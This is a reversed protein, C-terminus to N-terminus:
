YETRARRSVSGIKNRNTVRTNKNLRSFPCLTWLTNPEVTVNVTCFDKIFSCFPDSNSDPIPLSDILCVQNIFDNVSKIRYRYDTEPKM